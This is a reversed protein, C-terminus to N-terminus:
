EKEIRGLTITVKTGEEDSEVEMKYGLGYYLKIRERINKM